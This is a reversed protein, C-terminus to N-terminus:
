ASLKLAISVGLWNRLCVVVHRGGNAVSLAGIATYRGCELRCPCSATKVGASTVRSHGVSAM